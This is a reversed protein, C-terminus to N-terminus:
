QTVQEVTWALGMSVGGGVVSDPVSHPLRYAVRFTLSAASTGSLQQSWRADDPATPFEDLIGDYVTARPVFGSCGAGTALGEDVHIRLFRGVNQTARRDTGYMRLLVPPGGPYTVTLCGDGSAGRQLFPLDLPSDGPTRGSPDAVTLAGGAGEGDIAPVPGFAQTSGRYVLVGIAVAVSGVVMLQMRLRSRRRRRRASARQLKGFSATPGLGEARTSALEVM